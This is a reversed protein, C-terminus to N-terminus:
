SNFGYDSEIYIQRRNSDAKNPVSGFRYPVALGIFGRILWTNAVIDITDVYDITDMADVADYIADVAVVADMADYLIWLM